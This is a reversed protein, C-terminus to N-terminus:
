LLSLTASSVLCTTDSVYVVSVFSNFATGAGTDACSLTSTSTTTCNMSDHISSVWEIRGNDCVIDVTTPLTDGRCATESVTKPEVLQSWAATFRTTFMVTDNNWSEPAVPSLTPALPKPVPRSAQLCQPALLELDAELVVRSVNAVCAAADDATCSLGMACTYPKDNGTTSSPLLAEFPYCEFYYDDYDYDFPTADSPSATVLTANDWSADVPCYAGLRLVHFLRSERADGSSSVACAASSSGEYVASADVAEVTPGACSFYISAFPGTSSPGNSQIYVSADTRSPSTLNTTCVLYSWGHDDVRREENDDCVIVDNHSTNHIAIYPSACMVQIMPPQDDVCAEDQLLQFDATYNVWYLLEDAVSQLNRQRLPSTITAAARAHPVWVLSLPLLLVWLQFLLARIRSVM